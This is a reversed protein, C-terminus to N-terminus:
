VYQCLRDSFSATGINLFRDSATLLLPIDGLSSTQFTLPVTMEIDRDYPNIDPRGHPGIPLPPMVPTRTPIPPIQTGPLPITTPAAPDPAPPSSRPGQPLPISLIPLACTQVGTVLACRTHRRRSSFFFFCCVCVLLSVGVCMIILM